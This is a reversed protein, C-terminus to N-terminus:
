EGLQERIRELAADVDATDEASVPWVNVGDRHTAAFTEGTNFVEINAMHNRQLYAIFVGGEASALVRVPTVGLAFSRRLIEEATLIALQNPQDGEDLDVQHRMLAALEAKLTHMPSPQDVQRIFRKWEDVIPMFEQSTALSTTYFVQSRGEYVCEVIATSPTARELQRRMSTDSQAVAIEGWLATTALVTM